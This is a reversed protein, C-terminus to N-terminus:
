QAPPVLGAAVARAVLENANNAGLRGVAGAVHRQVQRSSISLAAAIEDYRLGDALLAVVELQRKTLTQWREDHPPAPPPLAPLAATKPESAPAEDPEMTTVDAPELMPASAPAADGARGVDIRILFRAIRDIVLGTLTAWFGFGIWLGLISVVPTDLLDGAVAHAVLNTLLVALCYSWTRGLPAVHAVLMILACAPWWLESRLPYALLAASIAVPILELTPRRCLARYVPAPFWAVVLAAVAVVAALIVTPTTLPVPAASDRLPLMAIAAVAAAACFAAGAAFARLCFHEALAALEAGSRALRAPAAALGTM